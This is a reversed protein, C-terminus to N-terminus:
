PPSGPAKAPMRRSTRESQSAAPPQACAKGAFVDTLTVVQASDPMMLCGSGIQYLSYRYNVSKLGPSCPPQVPHVPTAVMRAAPSQAGAVHRADDHPPDSLGTWTSSNGSARVGPPEGRGPAPPSARVRLRGAVRSMPRDPTGDPRLPADAPAAHCCAEAEERGLFRIADDRDRSWSSRGQWEGTPDGVEPRVRGPVARCAAPEEAGRIGAWRSPSARGGPSGVEPGGTEGVHTDASHPPPFGM